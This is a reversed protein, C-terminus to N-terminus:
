LRHGAVVSPPRHLEPRTVALHPPTLCCRGQLSRRVAAADLPTPCHCRVAYPPLPRPAATARDPPRGTATADAPRPVAAARDPRRCRAAAAKSSPSLPPIATSPALNTSWNQYWTIFITHTNMLGLPCHIYPTCFSIVFFYVM